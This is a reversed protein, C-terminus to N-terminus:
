AVQSCQEQRFQRPSRYQLAQHLREENYWRLWQNIIQRAEEFNEFPHQWACEEKVSRFIGEILGNNQQPTYPTIFEQALRYDGRAQRFRRSQFILGNDSRLVPTPGVPRLTGFRAICGAELAQEAEKARGRLAFEYGILERDHGDIVDGLWGPWVSYAHCGDGM